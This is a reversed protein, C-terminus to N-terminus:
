DEHADKRQEAPADLMGAMHRGIMEISAEAAPEPASLRGNSIVAIRDCLAFLEDLDESIMLVAAGADRLVIIATHIATAAGVDVGWTPHALILLRPELLMERGIIFKQLNGGSLSRAEAATGACVVNFADIIKGARGRTRAFGIFGNEVLGDGYGTLLTNDAMSMDGVAGRGVREAPVFALGCARRQVPGFRGVALKEIRITEAGPALREGSLAALLESQGNGAVGAIGVIEGGRVTLEIDRLATGFPDDPPLSLGDIVLREAGPSAARAHEPAQFERGIMMEALQKASQERPDCHAVVRGQRLVTAGECLTRIEDLKHSIYLISCGERALQTLTEFLGEVEQPTLVSTPEDMILLKPDQILCRIIEVRQREGVSLTHVHRRPHVPLRYHESVEAVRAEVRKLDREHDLCLAINEAVTLTDFLNFHQFVMGIGLRRAAAPNPISAPAGAWRIEGADPRVVGYIIKVLTSKGAGNEGLLAHIEGPLVKLDVRDNALTGPYRKTIGRLELLAVADPPATASM